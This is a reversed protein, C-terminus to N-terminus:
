ALYHLVSLAFFQSENVELESGDSVGVINDLDNDSISEENEINKGCGSNTSKSKNIHLFPSPLGSNDQELFVIFGLNMSILDICGLGM